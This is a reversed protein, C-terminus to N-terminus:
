MTVSVLHLTNDLQVVGLRLGKGGRSEFAHYAGPSRVPFAVAAATCWEGVV